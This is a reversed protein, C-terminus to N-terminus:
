ETRWCRFGGDVKRVTFRKGTIHQNWIVSGRVSEKETFFSDGVELNDFPYLKNKASRRPLEINKEIKIESMGKEM